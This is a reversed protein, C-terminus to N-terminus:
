EGPIRNIWEERNYVDRDHLLRPLILKRFPITGINDSRNGILRKLATIFIIGLCLALVEITGSFLTAWVPLLSMSIAVWLATNRFILWGCLGVGLLLLLENWALVFLVGLMVINGRGGTFKLYISWNHGVISSLGILVLIWLDFHMITGVYVPFAGKVFIDFAILPGVVWKNVHVWVNSAGVNGSGYDRIDIRKFIRGLLYAMPISGVFYSVLVVLIEIM